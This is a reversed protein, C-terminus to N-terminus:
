RQAMATQWGELAKSFLVIRQAIRDYKRSPRPVHEINRFPDRQGDCRAAGANQIALNWNRTKMALSFRQVFYAFSDKTKAGFIEARLQIGQGHDSAKLPFRDRDSAIGSRRGGGAAGNVPFQGTVPGYIPGVNPMARRLWSDRLRKGRASRAEPALERM